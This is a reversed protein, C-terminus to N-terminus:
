VSDEMCLDYLTVLTFTQGDKVKQASLLAFENYNTEVVRVDSTVGSYSSTYSFRGPEETRVFLSKRTECKDAKPYTSIVELDGDRTPTVVTTCMKMSSKKEQFWRSNSAFGISFWRGTFQDQQFDAQVPVEAQAQVLSALLALGWFGLLRSQM